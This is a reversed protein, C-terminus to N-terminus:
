NQKERPPKNRQTLAYDILKLFVNNFVHTPYWAECSEDKLHSEIEDSENLLVYLNHISKVTDKETLLAEAHLNGTCEKASCASVILLHSTPSQLFDTLGNM